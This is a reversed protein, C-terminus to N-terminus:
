SSSTPASPAQLSAAAHTTALARWQRAERNALLLRHEADKLQDLVALYKESAATMPAIRSEIAQKEALLSAVQRHCQNLEAQLSDREQKVPTLSDLERQMSDLRDRMYRLREQLVSRENTLELAADAHQQLEQIHAQSIIVFTLSVALFLSLFPVQAYKLEAVLEQTDSPLVGRVLAEHEMDDLKKLSAEM